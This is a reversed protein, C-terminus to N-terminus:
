KRGGISQRVGSLGLAGTLRDFLDLSLNRGLGQALLFDAFAAESTYKPRWGLTEALRTTDIVRGYTLWRQLEASFGSMGGLRKGLDGLASIAPAPM